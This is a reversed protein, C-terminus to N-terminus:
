VFNVIILRACRTGGSSMVHVVNQYCVVIHSCRHGQQMGCIGICLTKDINM